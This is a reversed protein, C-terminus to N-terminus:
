LAVSGSDKGDGAGRVALCKRGAAGVFRDAQPAQFVVAASGNKM